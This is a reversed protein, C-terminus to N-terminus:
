ICGFLFYFRLATYVPVGYCPVFFTAPIQLTVKRSFPLYLHHLFLVLRQIKLVIIMQVLFIHLLMPFLFKYLHRENISKEAIGACICASFAHNSQCLIGWGSPVNLFIGLSKERFPLVQSLM